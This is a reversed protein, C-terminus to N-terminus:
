LQLVLRRGVQTRGAYRDSERTCESPLSRPGNGVVIGHSWISNM